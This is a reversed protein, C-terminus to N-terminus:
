SIELRTNPLGLRYRSIPLTLPMLFGSSSRTPATRLIGPTESMMLSPSSPLCPAGGVPGGCDGDGDGDGCTSSARPVGNRSLCRGGGEAVLSGASGGISACPSSSVRKESSREGPPPTPLPPPPLFFSLPLPLRLPPPGSVGRRRASLGGGGVGGGDAAVPPPSQNSSRAADDSQRTM